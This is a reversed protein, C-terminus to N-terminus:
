TESSNQQLECISQRSQRMASSQISHKGERKQNVDVIQSEKWLTTSLCLLLCVFHVLYVFLCVFLCVSLCVSLCVFLCVFLCVSACYVFLSIGTLNRGRNENRHWKVFKKLTGNQEGVVISHVCISCARYNPCEKDCEIRGNTFVMVTHPTRPNSKSAVM